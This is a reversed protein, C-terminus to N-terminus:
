EQTEEDEAESGFTDNLADEVEESEPNISLTYEEEDEGGVIGKIRKAIPTPVTLSANFSEADLYLPSTQTTINKFVWDEVTRMVSRGAGGAAEGASKASKTAKEAAKSVDGEATHKSTDSLHEAAEGAKESPKEGKETKAKEATKERMEGEREETRPRWGEWEEVVEPDIGADKFSRTIEKAFEVVDDWSGKKSYGFVDEEADTGTETEADTESGASDESEQDSM